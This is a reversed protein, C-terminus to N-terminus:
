IFEHLWQRVQHEKMNDKLLFPDFHPDFPSCSQVSSSQHQLNGLLNVMQGLASSLHKPTASEVKNPVGNFGEQLLNRLSWGACYGSLMDLDHIHVDGERHALGIDPDYIHNLWYNATINGAMNLILGGLSYG